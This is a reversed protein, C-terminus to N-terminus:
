GEDEEAGRVGVAEQPEAAGQPEASAAGEPDAAHLAEWRDQADLVEEAHDFAWAGFAEILPLLTRGLPTLEYDVRPPAERHRRHTVLGHHALRRLTEGLVKGSIGGIRRRLEVPRRPGDRLAWVVVATWTNGM